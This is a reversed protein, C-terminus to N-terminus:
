DVWEFGRQPTLDLTRFVMYEGADALQEMEDQRSLCLAMLVILRNNRIASASMSSNSRLQALLDQREKVDRVAVKVACEFVELTEDANRLLGSACVIVIADRYNVRGRIDVEAGKALMSDRRGQLLTLQRMANDRTQHNGEPPIAYLLQRICDITDDIDCTYFSADGDEDDYGSVKSDYLEAYHSATMLNSASRVIRQIPPGDRSGVVRGKENIKVPIALM